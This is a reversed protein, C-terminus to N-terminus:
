SLLELLKEAPHPFVRVAARVDADFEVVLPADPQLFGLFRVVLNTLQVWMKKNRLVLDNSNAFLM